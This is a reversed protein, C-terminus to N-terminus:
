QLFLILVKLSVLILWGGDWVGAVNGMGGCLGGGFFMTAVREVDHDAGKVEGLWFCSCVFRNDNIM